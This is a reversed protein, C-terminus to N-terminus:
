ALRAHRVAAEALADLVADDTGLAGPVLHLAVSKFTQQLALVMAPVDRRVHRGGASLFLPLIVVRRHGADRLDRVAEALTPGHELVALVVPCDPALRRIRDATAQAPLLWLADPSGHALLILADPNFGSL